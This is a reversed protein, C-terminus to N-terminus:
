LLIRLIQIKEIINSMTKKILIKIFKLSVIKILKLPLLFLRLQNRWKERLQWQQLFKLESRLPLSAFWFGHIGGVSVLSEDDWLPGLLLKGLEVGRWESWNRLRERESAKEGRELTEYSLSVFIMFAADNVMSLSSCVMPFMRRM